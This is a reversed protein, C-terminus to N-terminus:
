GLEPLRIERVAGVTLHRCRITRDLWKTVSPTQLQRLLQECSDVKGDKPQCVILHNEVAVPERGTVLTPAARYRDGPRSTRKIVVFPPEVVTGNFRLRQSVRRVTGGTPATRADIFRRWTGDEKNRFPVVAGVSVQFKEQLRGRRARPAPWHTGEGEAAKRLVLLFVDVDANADFLGLSQTEVSLSNGAIVDRWRRYNSGTRLVEPLIAVLTTRPEARRLFHEIFVAAANVQGTAWRCGDPAPQLLYPPNMLIAETDLPRTSALADEVRIQPFASALEKLTLPETFLGRARALLVLRARAARIFEPHLDWGSLHLSWFALTARLTREIPLFKAAALLLDAAGCSPDCFSAAATVKDAALAAFQSGTFFAGFERRTELPVLRRLERGAEGDLAPAFQVQPTAHGTLAMAELRTIYQLFDTMKIGTFFQGITGVLAVGLNAGM